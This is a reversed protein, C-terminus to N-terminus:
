LVGFLMMYFVVVVFAYAHNKIDRTNYETGDLWVCHECITSIAKVRLTTFSMTIFLHAHIKM